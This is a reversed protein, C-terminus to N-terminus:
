KVITLKITPTCPGPMGVRIDAGWSRAIVLPYTGPTLGDPVQLPFIIRGDQIPLTQPSGWSSAVGNSCVNANLSLEKAEGGEAVRIPIMAKEGLHMTVETVEAALTPGQLRTVAARATPSIRFFGTDSTYYLTLPYATREIHKQGVTARGVVRFDALTGPGAELPATITLFQKTTYYTTNQPSKWTSTHRSSSWGPPLGEVSLDIDADMGSQRELKVLLSATSGPGWIPVVDPFQVLEFDPEALKALLRYVARPGGMRNAENVKVFYTGAAKPTFTLRSDPTRFDHFQEYGPDTVGEDAELLLQGNADYVQLVTDVPAKLFRHSFTELWVPATSALELRYWDEDRPEDFRGNMMVPLSLVTAHGRENNPEQEVSEAFDGIHLPVDRGSDLEGGVTVWEYPWVPQHLPLERSHQEPVNWGSFQMRVAEGRRGGAPFVAHPIPVEGITLRYVAQPFGRYGMLQIRVVYEGGAPATYHIVPDLGLTDQAEAVVKGTSDVLELQADVLGYDKYQGHADLAHAMVAAVLKQGTKASFKYCDVDPAAQIRGNITVPLSVAEAQAPTSNPETEVREPLKGVIFWALNTLGSQESVVRVARRGPIADAAIMLEAEIRNIDLSKIAGVTIGAPGEILVSKPHQLGGQAGMFEVKVTQGAQGGAPYIGDLRCMAYSPATLQAEASTAGLWVALAALMLRMPGALKLPSM